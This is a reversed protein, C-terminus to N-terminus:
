ADINGLRILEKEARELAKPSPEYGMEAMMRCYQQMKELTIDPFKESIALYLAMGLIKKRRIEADDAM